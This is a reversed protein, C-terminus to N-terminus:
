AFILKRGGLLHLHLHNITQGSDKGVNFTLRYGSENVGQNKAMEKGVLVLKGILEKDEPELQNLSPIHKKPIILLHVPAKPEIDKIVVIEDDEYLMFSPIEKNVVKCFICDM